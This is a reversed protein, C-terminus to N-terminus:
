MIPKFNSKFLNRAIILKMIEATGDGIKAGISDRLRQEVSFAESYGRAGMLTLTDHITQSACEVAYWKAMASEKTHALNEDKLKLAQYCLMRSAEILTACEAFKFLVGEFSSLPKGFKLRNNCFEMAESLSTKALGIAALAVLVRAFDFSMMIKKFGEGEEGVRFKLPVHVNDFFISARGSSHAGLDSFKNRKIGPLDLPVFFTSIGRIGDEPATKATVLIVDAQMGGSISTKEGDLIYMDDKRIAITKIGGADSGADPETNGFCALKEGTCLKSLWEKRIEEGAWELCMPTLVHSLMISFPSFDIGCIEEFVIGISVYDIPKGGYNIPTTMGLLGKDAIMEIIERKVSDIKAREQAGKSLRQSAFKRLTKQFHKQTENLFIM